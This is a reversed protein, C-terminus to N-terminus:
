TITVTISKTIGLPNGIADYATLTLTITHTFSVVYTGSGVASPLLGTNLPPDIGNNGTIGVQPVNTTYWILTVSQGPATSAPISFFANIEPTLGSDGTPSYEAIIAFSPLLAM